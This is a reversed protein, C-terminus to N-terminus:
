EGVPCASRVNRLKHFDVNTWRRRRRERTHPPCPPSVPAGAGPAAPCRDMKNLRKAEVLSEVEEPSCGKPYHWAVPQTKRLNRIVFDAVGYAMEVCVHKGEFLPNIIEKSFEGYGVMLAVGRQMGFPASVNLSRKPPDFKRYARESRRFRRKKGYQDEPPRLGRLAWPNVRPSAEPLQYFRRRWYWINEKADRFKHWPPGAKEPFRAPTANSSQAPVTAQSPQMQGTSGSFVNSDSSM